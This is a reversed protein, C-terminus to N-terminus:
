QGETASPHQSTLRLRRSELDGTVRLAHEVSDRHIPEGEAVRDLIAMAHRVPLPYRQRHPTELFSLVASM